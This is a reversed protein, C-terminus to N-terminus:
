PRETRAHAQHQTRALDSIGDPDLVLYCSQAEEAPGRREPLREIRCVLVSKGQPLTLVDGVSVPHSARRIRAGNIRIHGTLAKAQAMSRTRAFRLRCLLLDLRM